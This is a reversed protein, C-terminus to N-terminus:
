ETKRGLAVITTGFPPQFYPFIFAELECAWLLIQNLPFTLHYSITQSKSGFRKQYLKLLLAAPFVLGYYHGSLEIKFGADRLACVLEKKRFRIKHGLAFDHGGFLGPYAPVTILVHGGPKLVRRIESLASGPDDSHEIADLSIVLDFSNERFPLIEEPSLVLAAAYRKLCYDIAEHLYDMGVSFGIKELHKLNVGTGCGLDLIAPERPLRVMRLIRQVLRQKGRFWFYSTEAEFMKQYESAAM